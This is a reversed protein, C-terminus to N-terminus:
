KGFFYDAVTQIDEFKLTIACGDSYQNREFILTGVLIDSSNPKNSINFLGTTRYSAWSSGDWYLLYGNNWKFMVHEYTTGAMASTIMELTLTTVTKDLVVVTEKEIIIEKEVEIIVEKEIYTPVEVTVPVEKIIEVIVEKEVIVEVPVEVPVEIEVITEVEIPVEVIKEIEVPVEIYEVSSEGGCSAFILCIVAILVVCIFKKM